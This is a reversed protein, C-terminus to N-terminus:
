SQSLQHNSLRYTASLHSKVVTEAESTVHQDKNAIFILM